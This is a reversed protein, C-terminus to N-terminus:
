RVGRCPPAGADDRPARPDRHADARRASSPGHDDRVAHRRACLPGRTADVEWDGRAQEPAMYAPTGVIAGTRTLKADEAAAVGFDVLKVQFAGGRDPGSGALIVNSPKVDRHVIGAAHAAELADAVDAAVLVCAALPLPARRQRQAIDEGELWEMAVYPQGEELQGFAVVRVIGPHNLGALM